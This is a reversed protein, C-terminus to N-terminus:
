TQVKQRANPAVARHLAQADGRPLALYRARMAEALAAGEPGPRASIDIVLADIGERAVRSAAAQADEGAQKRGPQGDAGINARGDTLVVLSPTHGKALVQRAVGLATDLGIALPTGGGGPLDALARRARTLSRTPPLLVEASERRFAVLAVESRYVYAQALLMEIAGKAEALRAAAASGSADVAFITVRMAKEEFRRVRLDDKRVRLPASPEPREPGTAEDGANFARVKQWPVAARLTDILALRTGGRPIGPRANLPKGRRGGKRRRGTGGGQARRPANGAALQALLDAPIAATAAEVMRDELKGDTNKTDSDSSPDSSDPAPPEPPQESESQEDEPPPPMQTARPALVLRAAAELDIRVAGERGALAAHALAAEGAFLLARISRIGLAGATAAIAKLADDDLSLVARADPPAELAAVKRARSAALDCHFACREALSVPAREDEGAGDDLLILGAQEEDLAQALKGAIREDLREAMSAVLLGGRAEEILGRTTIPKGAALSAALDIGGLLREDDIHAPLRRVPLGAAESAAVLAELLADRAPSAGRLLMGGFHVPNGLWLTAALVADHVPDDPEPPEVPQAANV